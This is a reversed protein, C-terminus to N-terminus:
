NKFSKVRKIECKKPANLVEAKVTKMGSKIRVQAASVYQNEDNISALKKQNEIEEIMTRPLHQAAQIM